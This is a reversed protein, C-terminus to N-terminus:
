MALRRSRVVANLVEAVKAAVAQQNLDRAVRDRAAQSLRALMSPDRLLTAVATALAHPDERPVVLGDTGHTVIETMPPLDAVIPVAGGAMAEVIVDGWTEFRSPALLISAQGFLRAVQPLSIGSHWAIGPPLPGPPPGGVIDLELWDFDRRLNQFAALVIDGGKRHFETGFFLLRPPSLRPGEAIVNPGAGVVVLREAPVGMMTQLADAVLRSRTCVADACALAARELAVCTDIQADTLALRYSRGMARTLAITYDTYIVVPALAAARGADCTTGFQLVADVAPRSAFLRNVSRTRAHFAQPIAYFRARFRAKDPSFSRAAVWLRDLRSPGIDWLDVEGVEAALARLFPGYKIPQLGKSAGPLLGVVRM